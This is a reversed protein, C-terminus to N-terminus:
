GSWSLSAGRRGRQIGDFPAIFRVEILTPCLWTGSRRRGDSGRSAVHENLHDRAPALRLLALLRQADHVARIGAGEGLHWVPLRLIV